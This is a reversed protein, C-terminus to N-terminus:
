EAAEEEVPEPVDDIKAAGGSEVLSDIVDQPWDAPVEKDRKVLEGHPGIINTKAIIM